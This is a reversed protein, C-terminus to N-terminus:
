PSTPAAGTTANALARRVMLATPGDPHHVVWFAAAERLLPAAEARQGRSLHVRGLVGLAEAESATVDLGAGRFAARAASLTTVAQATDGSALHALGLEVQLPARAAVSATDGVLALASDALAVAAGGQGRLRLVVGQASLWSQRVSAPVGASDAMQPRLAELQRWADALRGLQADALALRVRYPLLRPHGDGRARRMAGLVDRLPPLAEATRQLRLLVNGRYGQMIGYNVSVTDGNREFVRKAEDYDALAALEQGVELRYTGNSARIFARMLNDAGLGVASASDALELVTIAERTRGAKGLARGLILHADVVRPHSDKGGYYTRTLQMARRAAALAEERDRAEHELAVAFMLAANVHMAHGSPLQADAVAMANRAPVISRAPEGRDIALHASDLLTTILLVPDAGPAARLRALVQTVVTDMADLQGRFRHMTAVGALARLVRADSAGHRLREERALAEFIPQAAAYEQLSSLSTAILYRLELQLEVRDALTTDLRANAQKLLDAASLPTGAGVYPDADKFINTIFATIEVARQQEARAVRAQWLAATAGGVVAVLVLAAASVAAAHRRVFRSARYGLADPRALVPRGDLWRQLDDGLERVTAYREEPPKRLAKLVITDLDGRVRRKRLADLTVDSPRLPDGTVIADELAGRSDQTLRYPRADTLLEFLVVGLAYVDTATTVEGGTVQEPSAYLPTLVQRGDRTIAGDQPTSAEDSILKAIGFDLLKVRGERDVLINSPKLDRHVVLNRHAHAVAALVDLFLVVRARTDLASARAFADLHQGDVHELVLYPQGDDTVGADRLQAIHPHQLRALIQGERRFRRAAEHSLLSASLLKVAVVADYRGDARRASWVSGMGGRGILAELVYPGCQVGPRGGTVPPPTAMGELFGDRSAEDRAALLSALREALAPHETAQRALWAGRQDSPLDLAEDLLASLVRWEEPTPAAM